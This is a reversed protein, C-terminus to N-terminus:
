RNLYYILTKLLVASPDSKKNATGAIDLHMFDKKEAFQKLFLAASNSDSYSSSDYNILDAIRSSKLGKLFDNDLPLRWIKEHSKESANKLENWSEEKTSWVGSITQGLAVVVSGTLTAISIIESAELKESAYFIGDALVLRGEADTDTIEVSKGSMSIHVEEPTTAKSSIKNDTLVMVVSINKGPKIKEVVKIIGAAIMAGSMDFKMEFMYKPPKLDYGGTDFTIGKGVIVTKEKSNKNGVYNIEVVRPEHASGANVALLLNMNLKKIAKKELIKVEIESSNKFENKIVEALYESTAINPPMEQYKKVFFKAESIIFMKEYDKKEIRTTITIDPKVIPEKKTKYGFDYEFKEQYKEIFVDLFDKELKNFTKVDFYLKRNGVFSIIKESIKQLDKYKIKEMEKIYFYIKKSELFESISFNEDNILGIKEKEIKEIFELEIFDEKLSENTIKLM